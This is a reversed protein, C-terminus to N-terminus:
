THCYKYHFTLIVYYHSLLTLNAQNTINTCCYLIYNAMFHDYLKRKLFLCRLLKESYKISIKEVQINIFAKKLAHPILLSKKRLLSRTKKKLDVVWTPQFIYSWNPHRTSLIFVGYIYQHRPVRVRVYRSASPLSNHRFDSGTEGVPVTFTAKVLSVVIEPVASYEPRNVRNVQHM